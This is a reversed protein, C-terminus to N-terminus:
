LNADHGPSSSHYSGNQTCRCLDSHRVDEGQSCRPVTKRMGFGARYEAAYEEFNLKIFNEPVQTLIQANYQSQNHFLIQHHHYYRIQFLFIRQCVPILPIYNCRPSVIPLPCLSRVLCYGSHEQFRIYPHNTYASLLSM